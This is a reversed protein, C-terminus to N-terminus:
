KLLCVASAVQVSSAKIVFYHEKVTLCECLGSPRGQGRSSKNESEWLCATGIVQTCEPGAQSEHHPTLPFFEGSTVTLSFMQVSLSYQNGFAATIFYWLSPSKFCCLHIRERNQLSSTQFCLTPWIGRLSQERQSERPSEPDFGEKGRLKQHHRDM